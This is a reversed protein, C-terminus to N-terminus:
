TFVFRKNQKKPIERDLHRLTKSREGQPGFFHGELAPSCLLDGEHDSLYGSLYGSLYSCVYDSVYGCCLLTWMGIGMLAWLLVKSRGARM